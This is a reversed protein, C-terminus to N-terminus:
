GIHIILARDFQHGLVTKSKQVAFTAPRYEPPLWLDRYNDQVIIWRTDKRLYYGLAFRSNSVVILVLVIIQDRIPQM